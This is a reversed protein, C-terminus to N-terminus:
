QKRLLIQIWVTIALLIFFMAGGAAVGLRHAADTELPVASLGGFVGYGVSLGGLASFVCAALVKM